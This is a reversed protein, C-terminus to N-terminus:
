RWRSKRTDLVYRQYNREFDDRSRPGRRLTQSKIFEWLDEKAFCVKGRVIVCSIKREERYRDLTRESVCLIDAAETKTLLRETQYQTEVSKRIFQAILEIDSLVRELRNIIESENKIM